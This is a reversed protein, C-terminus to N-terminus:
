RKSPADLWAFVRPLADQLVLVHGVDPVEVFEVDAENRELALALARAPGRAFDLSGVTVQFAVGSIADGAEIRGGGGLAAVAAFRTPARRANAIAQMAGMSHGILYVRKADFAYRTAIADLLTPLDPTGVPTSRPAVLLWGRSACAQPVLGGEGDFFLNESGGAGHLAIVLPPPEAPDSRPVLVRCAVSRGDAPVRLWFEGPRDSGYYRDGQAACAVAAEAERLLRAGPLDTEPARSRTLSRCTRLAARATSRELSDRELAAIAHDLAELRSDLERAVSITMRRTIVEGADTTITW